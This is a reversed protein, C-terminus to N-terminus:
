NNKVLHGVSGVFYDIKSDNKFHKQSFPTSPSYRPVKQITAHSNKLHWGRRPPPRFQLTPTKPNYRPVQSQLTPSPCPGMWVIRLRTPDQPQMKPNKPDWPSGFPTWPSTQSPKRASVRPFAPWFHWLRTFFINKARPQPRVSDRTMVCKGIHTSWQGPGPGNPGHARAWQARPGQGMPTEPPGLIGRSREFARTMVCM